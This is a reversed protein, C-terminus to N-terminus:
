GPAGRRQRVLRAGRREGRGAAPALRELPFYAPLLRSAPPLPRATSPAFDSAHQMQACPRPPAGSPFVNVLFSYDVLKRATLLALDGRLAVSHSEAHAAAVHLGHKGFERGFRMEHPYLRIGKM